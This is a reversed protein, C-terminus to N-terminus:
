GQESFSLTSGTMRRVKLKKKKFDLKLIKGSVLIEFNPPLIGSGLDEWMWAARLSVQWAQPFKTSLINTRKASPLNWCTFQSIQKRLM